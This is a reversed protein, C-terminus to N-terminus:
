QRVGEVVLYVEVDGIWAPLGYDGADLIVSGEFGSRYGGWPDDGEGIKSVDIAITQSVGRLSLNGTLVGRTSSGASSSSAFTISPYTEVDFYGSGRLHKDREAHDTDLSEVDITVHVKSDQPKEPDYAFTGNFDEFHGLIYSYGLHSAKFTIFVHQGPKDFLYEAGHSQTGTVCFLFLFFLSIVKKM